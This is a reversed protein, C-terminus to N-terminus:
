AATENEANEPAVQRRPINRRSTRRGTPNGTIDRSFDDPHCKLVRAIKWATDDRFQREGKMVYKIQSYSVGSMRALEAMTLGDEGLMAALVSVEILRGHM